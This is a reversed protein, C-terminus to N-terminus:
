KTAGLKSPEDGMTQVILDCVLFANWPRGYSLKGLYRDQQDGHEGLIWVDLM